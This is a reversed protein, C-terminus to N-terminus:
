QALAVGWATYQSQGFQQLLALARAFALIMRRQVNM